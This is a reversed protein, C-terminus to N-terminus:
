NGIKCQRMSPGFEGVQEYGGATLVQFSKCIDSDGQLVQGLSNVSARVPLELKVDRYTGGIGATVHVQTKDLVIPALCPLNFGIPFDSTDCPVTTQHAAYARLSFRANHFHPTLRIVTTYGALPAINDIIAVCRNPRQGHCRVQLIPTKAANYVGQDITYATYDFTRPDTPSDPQCKVGAGPQWCRPNLILNLSNATDVNAANEGPFYNTISLEMVPPQQAVPAGSNDVNWVSGPAGCSSTVISPGGAPLCTDPFPDSFESPNDTKEDWTLKLRQMQNGKVLVSNTLDYQASSGLDIESDVETLSSSVKVCRAAANNYPLRSYVATLAIDACGKNLQTPPTGSALNAKIQQATDEAIGQASYYAVLSYQADNAQHIEGTALQAMGVTIITLFITIFAVSLLAVAGEETRLIRFGPKIM